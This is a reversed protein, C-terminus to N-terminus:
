ETIMKVKNELGLLAKMYPSLFVQNPDQESRHKLFTPFAPYLDAIDRANLTHMKGWHPRGGHARFIEEMKKFYPRHDKKHYVHCALYASDRQYAPSMLIDDGKVWRNEVPFHVRFKHTDMAQNMEKWVDLYAEAPVNYEMERFKVLRQTAYVKHSYQVKRVDSVARATFRSIAETRSPFWTGLDCIVKFALNELIYESWYNFFNDKNVESNEILNTTKSIAQDTYPLWYFEFNRNDALREPLHAFIAELSEARNFIELKYLPVCQLSVETIIGLCGLSVQAAKFLEQNETESCTVVEGKGNVFRLAIVQTSITGFATGTGHTGTSITGAISQVDIDGLNE